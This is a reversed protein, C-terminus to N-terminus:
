FHMPIHQHRFTGDPPRSISEGQRWLEHECESSLPELFHRGVWWWYGCVDGPSSSMLRGCVGGLLGTACRSVQGLAAVALFWLLWRSSWLNAWASLSDDTGVYM